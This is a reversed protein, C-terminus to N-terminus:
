HLESCRGLFPLGLNRIGTLCSCAGEAANAFSQLHLNNSPMKPLVNEKRAVVIRRLCMLLLGLLSGRPTGFGHLLERLHRSSSHRSLLGPSSVGLCQQGPGVLPVLTLTLVAVTPDTHSQLAMEGWFAFLFNSDKSLLVFLFHAKKKKFSSSFYQSLKVSPCPSSM